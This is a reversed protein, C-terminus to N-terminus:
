LPQRGYWAEIAQGIANVREQALDGSVLSWSNDGNNLISIDAGNLTFRFTEDRHQVSITEPLAADEPKLTIEFEQQEM